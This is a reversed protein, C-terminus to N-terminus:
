NLVVNRVRFALSEAALELPLLESIVEPEDSLGSDECLWPRLYLTSLTASTM